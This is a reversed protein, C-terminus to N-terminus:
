EDEFLWVNQCGIYDAHFKRRYLYGQIPYDVLSEEYKKKSNKLYIAQGKLFSFKSNSVKVVEWICKYSDCEEGLPEIVLELFTSYKVTGLFNNWVIYGLM